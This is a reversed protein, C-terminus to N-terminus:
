ENIMSARYSSKDIAMFVCSVNMGMHRWALRILRPTGGGCTCLDGEYYFDSHVGCCNWKNCYYSLPFPKCAAKLHIYITTVKGLTFKTEHHKM